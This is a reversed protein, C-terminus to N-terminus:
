SADEKERSERVARSLLLHPWWLYAVYVTFFVFSVFVQGPYGRFLSNVLTLALVSAVVIRDTLMWWGERTRRWAGGTRVHYRVVFSGALVLGIVCEALIAHM